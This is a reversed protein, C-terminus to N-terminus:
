LRKVEEEVAEGVDFSATTKGKVELTLDTTDRNKYKVNVLDIATVNPTENPSLNTLDVDSDLRNKEVTVKYVGEPAGAFDGYTFIKAVGSENTTGAAGWSSSDSFLSVTAGELPSGGQTITVSCPFLKPLGDPKKKGNCGVFVVLAVICTTALLVKIQKQM